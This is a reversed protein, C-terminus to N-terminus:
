RFARRVEDPAASMTGNMWAASVSMSTWAGGRATLPRNPWLTLALLPPDTRAFPDPAPAAAGVGTEDANPGAGM